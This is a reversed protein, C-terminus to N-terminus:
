LLGALQYPTKKSADITKIIGRARYRAQRMDESNM